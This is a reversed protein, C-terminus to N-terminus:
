TSPHHTHAVPISATKRYRESAEVSGSIFAHHKPADAFWIMTSSLLEGMHEAYATRSAYAWIFVRAGGFASSWRLLASHREANPADSGRAVCQIIFLAERSTSYAVIDPLPELGAPSLGYAPWSSPPLVEADPIQQPLVTHLISAILTPKSPSPMAHRSNRRRPFPLTAAVYERCWASLSRVFSKRGVRTEDEGNGSKSAM